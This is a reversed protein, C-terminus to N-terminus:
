KKNMEDVMEEYESDSANDLCAGCYYPIDHNECEPFQKSIEIITDEDYQKYGCKKCVLPEYNSDSEKLFDTVTTEYGLFNLSEDNLEVFKNKEVNELLTKSIISASHNVVVQRELSAYEVEDGSRIDYRYLGEPLQKQQIRGNSFLFKQNEFGEIEIVEFKEAMINGENKTDKCKETISVDQVTPM